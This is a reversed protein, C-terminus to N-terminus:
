TAQHRHSSQQNSSCLSQSHLIVLSVHVNTLWILDNMIVLYVAICPTSHDSSHRQRPFTARWEPRKQLTAFRRRIFEIQHDHQHSFVCPHRCYKTKELRVRQVPPPPSHAGCIDHIGRAALSQNRQNFDGTAAADASCFGAIFSRRPVSGAAACSDYLETPRRGTSLASKMLAVTQAIDNSSVVYEWDTSTIALGRYVDVGRRRRRGVSLRSLRPWEADARGRTAHVRTRRLGDQSSLLTLEVM